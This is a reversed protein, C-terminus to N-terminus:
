LPPRLVFATVTNEYGHIEGTARKLHLYFDDKLTVQMPGIFRDQVDVHLLKCAFPTVGCFLTLLM